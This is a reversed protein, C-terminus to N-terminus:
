NSKLRVNTISFCRIGLYRCFANIVAIAWRLYVVASFLLFSVIYMLETQPTFLVPMGPLKPLNAICAGLALPILLITYKPFATKTLHALIIKSAMRGFVIGIAVAFPVLYHHSLIYSYPSMCWTYTAVCYVVIPACEVIMTSVFPKGNKRCAQFMTYFCLPSHTLMGFSVVLTIWAYSFSMTALWSPLYKPAIVHGVPTQWIAPGYIGSVTFVFAALLIGETPANVYGLYLVGTHYEEQTSLYFGFAEVVILLVTAESHGSGLAAAQIVSSFITNLADCGHDFLEGLPSSSKTRRAQRGDVNDFTSYLWIGAAASLYLWNPPNEDMALSPAMWWVLAVNLIIFMFGTLTILNPAMNRPFFDSAWDWYYRLVYRSIPSRDVSNYKYYKLNALKDESLSQDVISSFM